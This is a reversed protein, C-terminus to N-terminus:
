NLTAVRSFYCFYSVGDSWNKVGLRNRLEKAAVNDARYLSFDNKPMERKKCKKEEMENKGEFKM